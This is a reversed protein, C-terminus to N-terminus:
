RFNVAAQVPLHDSVVSPVVRYDTIALEPSVLIWDLKRKPRHAPYTPLDCPDAPGELFLDRMLTKVADHGRGTTNLDGMLILPRRREQLARALVAVQRSHFPKLFDLHVSAVDVEHDALLIRGVVFGKTDLPRARFRMSSVEDLPRRSLLAAGYDLGFRRYGVSFHRGHATREYGGEAAIREIHDFRGTFLSNRDAEQLAVVDPELDRLIGAVEGTTQRFADKQWPRSGRKPGRGHRINLTMVNISKMLGANDDAM